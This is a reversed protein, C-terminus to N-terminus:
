MLVTEFGNVDDYDTSATDTTGMDDVTPEDAVTYAETNHNVNYYEMTRGTQLDVVENDEIVGNHNIDAIAVDWKDDNDVDIVVVDEGSVKYHAADAYFGNNMELKNTSVLQVDDDDTATSDTAKAYNAQGDAKDGFGTEEDNTHAVEQTHTDAEDEVHNYAALNKDTGDKEAMEVDDVEEAEKSVNAEAPAIEPKVRQAFLAKEDYSMADWEERTYTNYINGKWRFVGGAGVDARAEKFTDEFSAGDTTKAVKIADDEASMSNADVAYMAGAGMLVGGFGGIAVPKWGTNGKKQNEAACGAITRTTENFTAMIKGIKLVVVETFNFCSSPHEHKKYM